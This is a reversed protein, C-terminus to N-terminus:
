PRALFQLPSNPTLRCRQSARDDFSAASKKRAERASPTLTREDLKLLGCEIAALRTQLLEIQSRLLRTEADSTENGRPTIAPSIRSASELRIMRTEISSLQQEIRNIRQSLFPDQQASVPTQIKFIIASFIGGGVAASVAVILLSSTFKLKKERKDFEMVAVGPM